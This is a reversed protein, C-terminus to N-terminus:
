DQLDQWGTGVGVGKVLLQQPLDVADVHAISKRDERGVAHAFVPITLALNALRDRSCSFAQDLNALRGSSCSLAGGIEQARAIATGLCLAFLLPPAEVHPPRTM